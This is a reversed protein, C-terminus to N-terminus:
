ATEIEELEVSQILDFDRLDDVGYYLVAMRKLAKAMARYVNSRGYGLSEGLVEVYGPERHIYATEIICREEDTLASLAKELGEVLETSAKKNRELMDIRSVCDLLSDELRHISGSRGRGLKELSCRLNTMKDRERAIATPISYELAFKVDAYRRLEEKLLALAM